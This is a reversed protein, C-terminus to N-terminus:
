RQALADRLLALVDSRAVDGTVFAEGIGRALIFRLQGDVVKKDQGMLALLAEADPLDGDIDALDVKMGMEALHARVRSPSEQACLGM